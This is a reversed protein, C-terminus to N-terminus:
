LVLYGLAGCSLIILIPNWKFTKLIFFAGTFLFLMRYDLVEWSLVISTAGFLALCLISYASSAILGVSVGKLNNLVEEAVISNKFFQFFQYLLSSIIVGSMICGVTALIGGLIGFTRIGVFTSANVALPGPTMQSITIIDTFEQMTLWHKARVISEEILPLTAYGGGISLLGIQFFSFFLELGKMLM